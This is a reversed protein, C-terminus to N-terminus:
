HNEELITKFIDNIHHYSDLNYRDMSTSKHAFEGEVLDIYMTHCGDEGMFHLDWYDDNIYNKVDLQQLALNDFSLVEFGSELYDKLKDQLYILKSNISENYNEYFKEGRRTKKYGLVLVKLLNKNFRLENLDHIGAIVHIVVNSSDDFRNIINNLDEICGICYSIGVGYVLKKNIWDNIRKQNSQNFSKQNVTINCIIGKEKMKILFEDIHIWEMIDGGGCSLETGKTLTDLFDWNINASKAKPSSNEFCFPCACNCVNTLKIDINDPFLSKFEDDNTYRIKTGDTYLKVKYNGNKYTSLLSNKIKNIKNIKM